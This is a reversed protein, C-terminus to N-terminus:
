LFFDERQLLPRVCRLVRRARLSFDAHLAPRTLTPLPPNLKTPPVRDSTVKIAPDTETRPESRYRGEAEQEDLSILKRGGGRKQARARDSENRLFNEVSTMLFCRFRGWDRAAKALHNKELFAAFFEQTLDQAQEPSYGLKRVFAYAPFWYSQCLRSLAEETEPSSRDGAALVVSWHTTPFVRPAAEESQSESEPM